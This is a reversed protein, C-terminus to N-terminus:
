NKVVSIKHGNFQIVFWLQGGFSLLAYKLVAAARLLYKSISVHKRVISWSTQTRAMTPDKRLSRAVGM